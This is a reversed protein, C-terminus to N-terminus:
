GSWGQLVQYYNAREFHAPDWCRTLNSRGRFVDISDHKHHSMWYRLGQEMARFHQPGQQLVAAVIQVAHAGALLSKIGDVVTHVGGTVALSARVRESLIALWRLRLLLDASTSLRVNPVLELTEIDIDAQYFRNFLVLGDVGAADLRSALNGFATYFPSLKVSVPIRVEKKVGRVIAEIQAEIVAASDHLATSVYYVNLELGDAGAQELLPAYSLWGDTSTVNLSAIVPVSVAAKIRRVQELYEGPELPFKEPRAFFARTNPFELGPWDAGGIRGPVAGAIQEEFLSHMVIASCGGDELRRVSDLHGTLPSAGMIFPHALTLGM